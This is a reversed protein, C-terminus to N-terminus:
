QPILHVAESVYTVDEGRCDDERCTNSVTCGRNKAEVFDNEGRVLIGEIDLTQANFVSSGSNGGYTDLNTIFFGNETGSRVTAGGAIKVPLGSPYGIVLIRDKEAVSGQRRVHLYKRDTVPRDLQIVAWDAGRGEEKRGLLKKCGYVSSKPVESVTKNSPLGWSRGFRSPANKEAFDFVFKTDECAKQSRVCHGATLVLDPGVLSGSCFGASLQERFPEDECLGMAQGFTPAVLRANKGDKMKVTASKMLAVTSRAIHELRSDQVQYLDQRDDNGYIVKMELQSGWVNVSTFFAFTILGFKM